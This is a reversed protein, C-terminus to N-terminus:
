YPMRYHAAVPRRPMIIRVGGGAGAGRLVCSGCPLRDHSWREGTLAGPALQDGLEVLTV